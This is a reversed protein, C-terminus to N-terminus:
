RFHRARMAASFQWRPKELHRVMDNRQKAILARPFGKEEANEGLNKGRRDIALEAHYKLVAIRGAVRRHVVHALPKEARLSGRLRFEGLGNKFARHILAQRALAAHDRQRM